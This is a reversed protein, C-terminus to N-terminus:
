FIARLLLKIIVLFLALPGLSSPEFRGWREPHRPRIQSPQPAQQLSQFVVNCLRISCARGRGRIGHSKGGSLGRTADAEHRLDVDTMLEAAIRLRGTVLLWSAFSRAKTIADAQQALSLQEWGGSRELKACFSEAAQTTSRGTKRGRGRIADLYAELLDTSPNTLALAAPM